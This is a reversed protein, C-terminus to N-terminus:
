RNGRQRSSINRYVSDAQEPYVRNMVRSRRLRNDLSGGGSNDSGDLARSVENESGLAENEGAFDQPSIDEAGSFDGDHILDDYSGPIDKEYQHEYEEFFSSFDKPADKGRFRGGMGAGQWHEDEMRTLNYGDGKNNSFPAAKQRAYPDYKDPDFINPTGSRTAVTFLNHGCRSCGKNAVKFSATYGCLECTFMSQETFEKVNFKPM